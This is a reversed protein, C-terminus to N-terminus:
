NNRTTGFCRLATEDAMITFVTANQINASIQRMMGLAMAELLDNHIEPSTYKEDRKWLWEIIELGTTEAASSFQLEGWVNNWHELRRMIGFGTASLIPHQVPNLAFDKKEQAKRTYTTWIAFWWYWRNSNRTGHCIKCSGGYAFWVIRAKSIREKKWQMKWNSFWNKKFAPDTNPSPLM